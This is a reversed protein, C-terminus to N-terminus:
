QLDLAPAHGGTEVVVAMCSVGSLSEHRSAIRSTARSNNVLGKKNTKEAKHEEINPQWVVRSVGAFCFL